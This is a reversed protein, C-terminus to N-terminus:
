NQRIFSMFDGCFFFVLEPSAAIMLLGGGRAWFPRALASSRRRRLASREMILGEVQACPIYLDGSDLAPLSWPTVCPSVIHFMYHNYNIM